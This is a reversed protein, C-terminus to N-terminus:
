GRAAGASRGCGRSLSSQGECRPPKCVGERPNACEREPTVGADGARAGSFRRPESSGGRGARVFGRRRGGVQTGSTTESSAGRSSGCWSRQPCACVPVMLANRRQRGGERRAGTAAGEGTKGVGSGGVVAIKVLRPRATAPGDGGPACEAITCMSQTLRMGAAVRAWRQRRQAGPGKRAGADRGPGQRGSLAGSCRGSM